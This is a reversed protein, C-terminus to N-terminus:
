EAVEGNAFSSAEEFLKDLDVLASDCAIARDFLRMFTDFVSENCEAGFFTDDGSRVEFAYMGDKNEFKHLEFGNKASHYKLKSKFFM